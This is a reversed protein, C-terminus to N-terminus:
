EDESREKASIDLNKGNPLLSAPISKGELGLQYRVCTQFNGNCYFSQWIKLAGNIEILPFLECSDKRSCAM